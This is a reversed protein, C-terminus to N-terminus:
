SFYLQMAVTYTVYKNHVHYTPIYIYIYIYRIYISVFLCTFHLNIKPVAPWEHLACNTPLFFFCCSFSCLIGTQFTFSNDPWM